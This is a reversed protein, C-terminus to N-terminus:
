NLIKLVWGIRIRDDELQNWSIVDSVTVNYKEAITWISEGEKVTHIKGEFSDETQAHRRDPQKKQAPGPYITLKQGPKITSGSINNWKRIKRSNTNYDEAIHGLTDGSKVVYVIPEGPKESTKTVEAPGIVGGATEKGSKGTDASALQESGGQYIVLTKGAIIKNGNLNNWARIDNSSVGYQEAIGGITDGSKIKYAVPEGKAASSTSSTTAVESPDYIRLTQGAIIRNNRLNNWKRVQSTSVGYMEAIESITDGKRIKHRVVKGSGTRSVSSSSKTTNNEAMFSPDLKGTYITLSKGAIIKNSRINNWKKLDSIRVGYKYAITSLSEGRRIKHKIWQEGSNGYIIGLKERRSLSNISSYYEQKDEPVYIKLTQGVHITSTYALNNWNRIDSVRISFLDAIDVLNDKSRVTYDVAVKGEPIIVRTTDNLQQAYLKQYRDEDVNENIKLAYPSDETVMDAELAPMIDSNVVFDTEQFDSIPIKINQGPYINSKVSINNIRAINSLRVKYKYAIGGLTEGSKVRHVVYRLKADDPVSNLNDAFFEESLKPIKLNYVGRDAPPTHHQILAPNLDKLVKPSVGACKALVKLDIAENIPHHVYEIPKQYKIDTFGYKEPNSFILTVAIYQPVYNRTERPLYYRIKWFDTSGTRRMARRVRGEGTNYSALALKWDGLSLYLDRLYKAAARTAKEPDRREDVYFDVQLDYLRATSRIFQWQGVARAWSRANPDLGSEPLSLFILQQLVQEQGFIEAMMPLYKGSRSLWVNMVHRGGGTFYEIYREVYRNVELEFDGVEITEKTESYKEHDVDDFNIEMINKNTWEEFASISANPPLEDLSNIFNQYDEVISNELDIYAANEEIDPYYSLKNIINMTLEYSELAAETYGLNENALADMYELRADELLENVIIAPDVTALTDLNVTAVDNRQLVSDFFSCSYLILSALLLVASRKFYEM